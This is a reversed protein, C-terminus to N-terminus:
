LPRVQGLFTYTGGDADFLMFKQELGVVNAIAICQHIFYGAVWDGASTLCDLSKWFFYKLL